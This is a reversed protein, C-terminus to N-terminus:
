ISDPLHRSWFKESRLDNPGLPEQAFMKKSKVNEIDWFKKQVRNMEVKNRKLLNLFFISFEMLYTPPTPM